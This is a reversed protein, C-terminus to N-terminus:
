IEILQASSVVNKMLMAITMPGVGGPVPTIFEAKSEIEDFDVDGCLKGNIDHNMGVDIITAGPKVMDSKIFKEKGVASILIDANRCFHELESTRSHCVTVTANEKLMMLALPKGVINSRGVITCNKGEIKIKYWKLLEIIGSPTCPFINGEGLFVKGINTVNFCDVDKDPSIAQAVTFEDIHLPLPLQTLIGHIKKSRNLSSILELLEEQSTNEPLSYEESYIGIEECSKKKNNVYIRSAPNNGVIIVALGPAIGRKKLESVRNALELKIENAVKKGDIIM